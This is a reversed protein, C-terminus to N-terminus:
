PFFTFFIPPLQWSGMKRRTGNYYEDYISALNGDKTVCDAEADTFSKRKPSENELGVYEFCRQRYRYWGDPCGGKGPLDAPPPTPDVTNGLVYQCIFQQKKACDAAVWLGTTEEMEVCMKQGNQNNPQSPNPHSVNLFYPM